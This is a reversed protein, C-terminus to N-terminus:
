APPMMDAPTSPISTASDTPRAISSADLASASELKGDSLKVIRDALSFYADDHTIVIVTKGRAKLEPLLETYFVRRSAPDQDAAWEDFLYIPRDELYSSVLALRKKQGQSLEITSFRGDQVKVKHAMGLRAVYHAAREATQTDDAELLHEFLHFDSFVASFRSRYADVNDRRVPVGNLLIEGEEAEYLGVLLMALTTKGGGNGGVVFLLEGQEIRLDLPGLMFPTDESAGAYRHRVGRLELTLAGPRAFPDAAAPGDVPADLAQELNRIRGLAIAAQRVPPLTAMLEAIPSILYLLILTIALLETPAQRMWLPVLFVFVGIVVYFLIAGLNIVLTYRAMAAVFSNKLQNASVTIVRSVFLRGRQANLQLERSGEVLNRFDQFLIEVKERLRIMETLPKREAFHFGTAGVLLVALLIGFITPSLYGIYAFSALVIVANGFAVPLLQLAQVFTEIDRTLIVLLGHKGLSQLRRQPTALLKQSLVIRLRRTAEQSIHLLVVGSGTKCLLHLLCLGFFLVALLGLPQSRELGKGIVVALGAGSFGGAMGLATALLVLAPSLGYLYRLLNM